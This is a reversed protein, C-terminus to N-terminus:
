TSIYADFGRGAAAIAFINQADTGCAEVSASSAVPITASTCRTM